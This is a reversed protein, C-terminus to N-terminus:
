GPASLSLRANSQHLADTVLMFVRHSRKRLLGWDHLRCECHHFLRGQLKVITYNWSRLVILVRASKHTDRTFVDSLTVLDIIRRHAEAEQGGTRLVPIPKQMLSLNCLQFILILCQLVLSTNDLPVNCHEFFTMISTFDDSQILFQLFFM